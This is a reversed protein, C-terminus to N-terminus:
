AALEQEGGDHRPRREDVLLRPDLVALEAQAAQLEIVAVVEDDFRSDDGVPQGRLLEEEEEPVHGRGGVPQLRLQRRMVILLDPSSGCSTWFSAGSRRESALCVRRTDRPSSRGPSRRGWTSM